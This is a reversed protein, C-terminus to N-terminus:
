EGPQFLVADPPPAEAAETFGLQSYYHLLRALYCSTGLETLHKQAFQNAAGVMLQVQAHTCPRYLSPAPTLKRSSCAIALTPLDSFWKCSHWIMCQISLDEANETMREPESMLSWTTYLYFCRPVPWSSCAQSCDFQIGCAQCLRQHLLVASAYIVTVLAKGCCPQPKGLRCSGGAWPRQHKGVCACLATAASAAPLVMGSFCFMDYRLLVVRAYARM